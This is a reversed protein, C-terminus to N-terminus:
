RIRSQLTGVFRSVAGFEAPAYVAAARPARATSRSVVVLESPPDPGIVISNVALLYDNAEIRYNGWFDNILTRKDENVADAPLPLRTHARASFGAGACLWTM